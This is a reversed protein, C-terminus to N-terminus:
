FSTQFFVWALFTKKLPCVTKENVKLYIMYVSVTKLHTYRVATKCTILVSISTKKRYWFHTQLTWNLIAWVFSYFIRNICYIFLWLTKGKTYMTTPTTPTTPTTSPLFPPCVYGALSTERDYDQSFSCQVKCDANKSCCMVRYRTLNLYMTSVGTHKSCDWSLWESVDCFAITEHITQYNVNCPLPTASKCINVVCAIILVYVHVHVRLM